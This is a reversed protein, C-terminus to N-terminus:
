APVERLSSGVSRGAIAAQLRVLEDSSYVAGWNTVAEVDLFDTMKGGIVASGLLGSRGAPQVELVPEDIIDTIEDVILGFESTGRRCVVLHLTESEATMGGLMEAVDLLPLIRQRYQVAARGAAREVTEVPIKELRAVQSLPIALRPFSGARCILLSRRRAETDAPAEGTAVGGSDQAAQSLLGSRMGIGVVDLILAIRGDGMITAGAYCDLGKLQQGMAKVVIEQSDGIQDVILGFRRDDAQLVVISIEEPPRCAAVGLVKSLDAVPLLVNRRRFVPASHVQEVLRADAGELRILEHLNVQPIVFREGGASVVLGPIIALTLPIRIRVTAGRGPNSVLEVAGGIREIHTKVVDMGVGRGSVNTVTQATSFGPLFVLNVADRASFRSAQEASLLGREIAKAKVREPDIGAGDDAIAINVQGGEHYACLSIRGRAPKGAAVRTRPDEIGHDCCNRVIHILPDKIAELITRDLETRAGNMHLDIEKGLTTTLDRVIRPLKNWVLGIPQMRTKMVGEQLETTILNMRQSITNLATDERASNYQLVQNRTLVLEGVLNMLRDLLGVDVRLASDAAQPASERPAAPPAAEVIALTEPHGERALKLRALLEGEFIEGEGTGAQISGLIRKIADVSQLIVSTLAGDIRRRNQRLENLIDETVHALAELRGFGLFGCTGKITHITRFISAVLELSGPDQELEVMEQDLRALNEASEILFERLIDDDETAM